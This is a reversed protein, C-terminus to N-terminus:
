VILRSACEHEEHNWTFEGFEAKTLPRKIICPRNGWSQDWKRKILAMNSMLRRDGRSVVVGLTIEAKVGHPGLALKAQLNDIKCIYNHFLLKVKNM